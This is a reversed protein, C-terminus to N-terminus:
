NLDIFELTLVFLLCTLEFFTYLTFDGGGSDIYFECIEKIWDCIKYLCKKSILVYLLPIFLYLFKNIDKKRNKM